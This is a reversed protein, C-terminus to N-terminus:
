VLCIKVDVELPNGVGRLGLPTCNILLDAGDVAAAQNQWNYYTVNLDATDPQQRCVIRIDIPQLQKLAAIVAKAAGGNGFLTATRIPPADLQQFIDLCGLVDTNDGYFDAGQRTLTNIAQAKLANPTQHNFFPFVHQKYPITVNLGTLATHPLSKLFAPLDTPAIDYVRYEGPINYRKLWHNHLIPSKSYAINRGLLGLALM